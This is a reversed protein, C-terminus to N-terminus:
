AECLEGVQLPALPTFDFTTVRVEKRLGDREKFLSPIDARKEDEKARAADMAERCREEGEKVVALEASKAKLQSYLNNHHERM